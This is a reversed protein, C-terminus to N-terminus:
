LTRGIIEGSAMGPLWRRKQEDTAFKILFPAVVYSHLDWAPGSAGARGLEELVVADFLFGADSGGYEEAISTGLLGTEGAKLWAERPVLHVEEWEEHYPVIETELFRRVTDRFLEHEPDFITRPIGFGPDNRVIQGSM